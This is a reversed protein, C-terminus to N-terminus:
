DDFLEADIFIIGIGYNCKLIPYFWRRKKVAKM